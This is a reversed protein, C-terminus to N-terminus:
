SRLSKARPISRLAVERYKTYADKAAGVQASVLGENAAYVAPLTFALFAVLWVFGALSFMGALYVGLFLALLVQAFTEDFGMNAVGKLLANTQKHAISLVAEVMERSVFEYEDEDEAYIKYGLLQLGYLCAVYGLLLYALLSALPFEYVTLLLFFFNVSAFVSLSDSFSKWQLLDRVSYPKRSDFADM